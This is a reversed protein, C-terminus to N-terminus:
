SPSTFILILGRGVLKHGHPNMDAIVFEHNMLQILNLQVYKFMSPIILFSNM